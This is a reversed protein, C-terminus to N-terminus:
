LPRDRRGHQGHGGPSKRGYSLCSLSEGPSPILRLVVCAAPLSLSGSAFAAV